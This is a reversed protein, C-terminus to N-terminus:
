HTFLFQTLLVFIKACLHRLTAFHPDKFVQAPQLNRRVQKWQFGFTNWQTMRQYVENSRYCKRISQEGIIIWHGWGWLLVRFRGVFCDSLICQKRDFKITSRSFVTMVKVKLDFLERRACAKISPNAALDWLIKKWWPPLYGTRFREYNPWYVPGAIVSCDWKKMMHSFFCNIVENQITHPAM